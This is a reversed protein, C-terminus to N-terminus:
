LDRRFSFFDLIKYNHKLFKTGVLISNLTIYSLQDAQDNTKLHNKKLTKPTTKYPCPLFLTKKIVTKFANYLYM